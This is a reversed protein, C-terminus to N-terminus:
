KVKKASRRGALKKTEGAHCPVCLSRTNDMGHGGKEILPVIHDIDYPHRRELLRFLQPVSLRFRQAELVVPGFSVPWVMQSRYWARGDAGVVKQYMAKLHKKLEFTDIGCLACIGKDREEVHVRLYAPQSRLKWEHICAESCFTMKPPPVPQDCWRCLRHGEADRKIGDHCNM